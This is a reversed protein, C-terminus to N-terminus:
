FSRAVAEHHQNRKGGELEPAVIVPKMSFLAVGRWGSVSAAIRAGHELGVLRQFVEDQDGLGIPTLVQDLTQL